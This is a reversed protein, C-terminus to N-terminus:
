RSCKIEPQKTRGSSLNALRELPPAQAIIVCNWRSLFGVSIYIKHVFRESWHRVKIDYSSEKQVKNWKWEKILLVPTVITGELGSIDAHRKFTALYDHTFTFLQSFVVESIRNSLSSTVQDGSTFSLEVTVKIQERSFNRDHLNKQKQASTEDERPPAAPPPAGVAGTPWIHTEMFVSLFYMDCSIMHNFDQMVICCGCLTTCKGKEMDTTHISFCSSANICIYETQIQLYSILWFTDDESPPNFILQLPAQFNLKPEM